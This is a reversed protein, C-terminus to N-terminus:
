EARVCDETVLRAPNFNFYDLHSNRVSYCTGRTRRPPGSQPQAHATPSRGGDSPYPDLSPLLADFNCFRVPAFEHFFDGAM